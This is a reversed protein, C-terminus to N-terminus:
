ARVEQSGVLGGSASQASVSVDAYGAIVVGGEMRGVLGGVLWDGRVTGGAVYSAAITGNSIGVLGGTNTRNGTVNVGVNVLGVSRIVGSAGLGGFLGANHRSVNVTMDEIVYGNGEFVATYRNGADGIPTWNSEGSLDLDNSLEYGACRNLCTAGEDFSRFAALYETVSVVGALGRGGLDHRIAKLQTTTTVEILGDNDVDYDTGGSAAIVSVVASSAASLRVGGPAELGSLRVRFSERPEMTRDQKIGVRFVGSATNVLTITGTSVVPPNANPANSFDAVAAHNTGTGTTLEVSWTLTVVDANRGSLEVAYM